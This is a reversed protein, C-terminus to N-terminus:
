FSDHVFAAFITCQNHSGVVFTTTDSVCLIIQLHYAACIAYLKARWHSGQHTTTKV